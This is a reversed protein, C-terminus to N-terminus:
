KARTVKIPRSKEDAYVVSSLWFEEGDGNKKRFVRFVMLHRFGCACCTNWWHSTLSKDNPFRRLLRIFPEGPYLQDKGEDSTQHPPWQIKQRPPGVYKKNRPKAPRTM